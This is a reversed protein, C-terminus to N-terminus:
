EVEEIQELRIPLEDVTAVGEITPEAERLVLRRVVRSEGAEESLEARYTRTEVVRGASDLLKLQLVLGDLEYLAFGGREEEGDERLTFFPASFFIEVGSDGTYLGSLSRRSMSVGRFSPGVLSEQLGESLKTYTGDWLDSGHISLRITDLADVAVVGFRKISQIAENTLNIQLNQYITKYSNDWFFSEQVDNSLFTITDARPDFHLLVVSDSGPAAGSTRFWPGDLFERFDDEDGRYLRSLEEDSTDAAPIEERGISVYREERALWAYTEEVLDMIDDSAENPSQVVVDYPRGWSSGNQYAGSREYESIEISGPAGVSLISRYYLGIGTPPVARKFVDIHQEGNNNAGIAVLELEHDGTLDMLSLGFSTRDTAGTEGRWSIVFTDRVNDFDLVVLRILDLPDERQKYIIIQEEIVDLDLNSELVDIVVESFEVKPTPHQSVGAAVRMSDVGATLDIGPAAEPVIYQSGIEM